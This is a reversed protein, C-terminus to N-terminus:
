LSDEKAVNLGAVLASFEEQKNTSEGLFIYGCCYFVGYEDNIHWDVGGKSPTPRAHGM